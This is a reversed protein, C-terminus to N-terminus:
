EATPEPAPGPDSQQAVAANRSEDQEGLLTAALASLRSELRADISSTATTVRCGGRALLPDEILIWEREGNPETLREKVISADAPHLHVRVDRASVPLLQVTHRVIGIVQEPEIALERRVLQRGITLALQTLEREVELDLAALPRALTDLIAKLAAIKVDLEAVRSDMEARIAREGAERGAALGQEFAERELAELRSVTPGFRHRRGQGDDVSPLNWRAVPQAEVSREAM